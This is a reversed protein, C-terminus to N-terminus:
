IIGRLKMEKEIAVRIFDNLSQKTDICYEILFDFLEPQVNLSIRKTKKGEFVSVTNDEEANVKFSLENNETLKEKSFRKFLGM